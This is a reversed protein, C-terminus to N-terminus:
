KYSNSYFVDKFMFINKDNKLSNIIWDSFSNRYKPGIGYFNTRLILYNKLNKKILNESMLKSKAYYNM